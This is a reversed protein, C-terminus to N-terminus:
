EVEFVVAELKKAKKLFAKREKEAEQKNKFFCQVDYDMCDKGKEQMKEVQSILARESTINKVADNKMEKLRGYFWKNLCESLVKTKEREEGLINRANVKSCDLTSIDVTKSFFVYERHSSDAAYYETSAMSFGWRSQSFSVFSVAVLIASILTPKKLKGILCIDM